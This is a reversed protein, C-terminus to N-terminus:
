DYSQEEYKLSSMTILWGPVYFSCLYVSLKIVMRQSTVRMTLVSYGNASGENKEVGRGAKNCVSVNAKDRQRGNPYKLPLCVVDAGGSEHSEM